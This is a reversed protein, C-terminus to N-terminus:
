LRRVPAFFIESRTMSLSNLRIPSPYAPNSTMTVQALSYLQVGNPSASIAPGYRECQLNQDDTTPYLALTVYNPGQPFPDQLSCAKTVWTLTWYAPTAKGYKVVRGYSDTVDEWSSRNGQEGSITSSYAGDLTQSVQNTILPFMYRYDVLISHVIYGFGPSMPCASASSELMAVTMLWLAWMGFFLKMKRNM